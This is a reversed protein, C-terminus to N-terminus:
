HDRVVCLNNDTYLSAAAVFDGSLVDLVKVVKECQSRKYRYIRGQSFLLLMSYCSGLFLLFIYGYYLVIYASVTSSALLLTEYDPSYIITTAPEELTWTQTVEVQNGKIKLCRLVNEQLISFGIKFLIFRSYTTTPELYFADPYTSSQSGSKMSSFESSIM